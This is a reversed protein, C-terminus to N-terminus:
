DSDAQRAYMALSAHYDALESPSELWGPMRTALAAGLTEITKRLAEKNPHTNILAHIVASMAACRAILMQVSDREDM